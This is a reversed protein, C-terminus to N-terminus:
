ALVLKGDRLWYHGQCDGNRWGPCGLSPTLSPAGDTGTKVWRPEDWGSVPEDGLQGGTCTGCSPCVWSMRGTTRFIMPAFGGHAIGAIRMVYPSGEAPRHEDMWQRWEVDTLVKVPVGSVPAAPDTTM